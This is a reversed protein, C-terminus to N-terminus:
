LLDFDFTLGFYLLLEGGYRVTNGDEPTVFQSQLTVDFQNLGYASKMFFKMPFLYYSNFAFRLEAGLGTKLNDGINLTSNWANGAEAFTNLFVKDLTYAGFQRNINQILPTIISARAFATTRGGLAFFPYSNMGILGGAYDFYFTDDPQNLYSFARATILGTTSSSIRYGYRSNLELSHNQNRTYVPSLIGDNIEFESLLEGPQYRYTISSKIGIPTIDYHKTPEILEVIYSTSLTRGRFYQSTSGPVFDNFENSFFGETNVSYPSYSYGLQLLSWHNLKSTFRLNAEWISYRIDINRDEPLCSSCAFEEITIGGKVNRTLNFMEVTITPSWSRKIFPLGRHEITLFLDRDLKNLRSPSIFENLDEAPVSGFGFLAGGFISINETVDRTSLYAGVKLDRWLNEGLGTFNGNGILSRNSGRLKTYNDFRIVPFLSLGTTRESYPYWVINDDSSINIPENSQMLEDESLSEFSSYSYRIQGPISFPSTNYLTFEEPNIRDTKVIKYGDHKYESYYLEDDKVFPMFAGGIVDTLKEVQRNNLNFRYINFIGTEDSSYYLYQGSPDIWPDRYDIRHNILVPYVEGTSTSYSHLNRNGASAKTFFIEEGNPHWVPTFLTENNRFDTIQNIESSDPDILILNQRGKFQKVAALLRSSPHWAPDQVRENETIKKSSVTNIDHIYIDQYTEGFRNKRARSYAIENGDPSFSFRNSIFDLSLNSSFGHNITYSQSDDLLKPSGLDDIKIERTGDRIVLATRGADRGKNTLYGFWNGNSTFQPYFNFFGESEVLTSEKPYVSSQVDDYFLHREDIWEQFLSTGRYGTANEIIRDFNSTRSNAAAHSIDAIVDEGFRSILYITFGFGQNYITERELSTKSSFMGMDVFDLYSNNLIRTRLVMDRHTDWFDFSLDSRQYQATGEAFWAPIAVTAFPHTVIGNPFGYLVDPRRVDEYSLWQLYIAPIKQSRKMSAGMQVIHTFEHTIVNELWSHTGRLPTDLAPLWIEIKDDFFYAAGNSYDERDRLVISVKRGPTHRYLETIPIYIEEAIASSIQASRNNGKQYHVFFHDSEITYWPLHNQPYDFFIPSTQAKLNEHVSSFIMAAIILTFIPIHTFKRIM